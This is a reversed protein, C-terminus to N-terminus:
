AFIPCRHITTDDLFFILTTIHYICVSLWNLGISSLHYNNRNTKNRKRESMQFRWFFYLKSSKTEQLRQRRQESMQTQRQGIKEKKKNRENWNQYLAKILIFSTELLFWFFIFFFLSRVFSRVFHIIDGIIIYM